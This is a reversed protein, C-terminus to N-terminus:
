RNRNISRVAHQFALEHKPDGGEDFVAAITMQRPITQGSVVHTGHDWTVLVLCCLLITVMTVTNGDGTAIDPLSATVQGLGLTVSAVPCSVTNGTHSLPTLHLM